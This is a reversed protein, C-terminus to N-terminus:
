SRESSRSVPRTAGSFTQDALVLSAPRAKTNEFTRWVYEGIIGLGFSNLGAFFVTTLIIPTYGGVTIRGILRSFLVLAGVGVAAIMTLMGTVSLLRIPLDTFSYINDKLYRAKKRFTWASTGNERRRREYPVLKRRFGVWFLQAVLSSNSEQLRLLATLAARNCGFIDVGGAPIQPNILRRYLGWFTRSALVSLPPDARGVRQGVVVDAEDGELCKFFEEVLEIPEQLDAAMVAFHDGTATSLGTRIAAFAGFNRSHAVLRSRFPMLPLRERLLEFCRDPSGDVVFVVELDTPLREVLRSLAAFLADLNGENRYVPIVLSYV